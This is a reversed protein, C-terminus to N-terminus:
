SMYIGMYIRPSPKTFLQYLQYISFAIQVPLGVTTVDFTLLLLQISDIVM